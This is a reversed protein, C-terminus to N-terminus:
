EVGLEVLNSLLIIDNAQFCKGTLLKSPRALLVPVICLQRYSTLMSKSRRGFTVFAESPNEVIEDGRVRLQQASRIHFYQQTLVSLESKFDQLSLSGLDTPQPRSDLLFPHYQKCAAGHVNPSFYFARLAICLM